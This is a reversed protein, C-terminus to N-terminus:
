ADDGTSPVGVIHFGADVHVIEGTIASAYPSALLLAVRGVECGDVTRRQPSRRAATSRAFSASLRAAEALAEPALVLGDREALDVMNLAVVVPRGLAIVEQAFVLHQELNSADLVRQAEARAAEIGDRRARAVAALIAARLEALQEQEFRVYKDSAFLGVDHSAFVVEQIAQEVEPPLAETPGATWANFAGTTERKM